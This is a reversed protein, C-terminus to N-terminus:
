EHWESFIRRLRARQEEGTFICDAARESLDLTQKRDLGFHTAALHYEQSLPSCFVGVDDTSLAVPVSSHRWTGFHHDPFSGTIMKAHVNCSLCLEVGIHQSEIRARFADSVHIVHGLRDPDWSLLTDLEQDTGSEQIEAFHLTINLGATKARAFVPTFIRVDGVAPNGCLDVGVVGASRYKISLDVVEEAEAVTNRRDVSLILFTKMTNSPNENHAQLIALVTKVYDDKSLGQQPISRPTTRLELYVVGDKQFDDLVARTSYKISDVDNCLKYIYSSFLPFFTKIDYDVRGHPIAILPDELDLPSGNATKHTWIQHLCHRSISGTLHAHLQSPANM